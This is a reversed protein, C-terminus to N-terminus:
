PQFLPSQPNLSRANRYAALAEDANGLRAELRSLVLWTQWNTSEQRSAERAEVAAADIDGELELVIARQLSPTAAYPQLGAADDAKDLAEDLDGAAVAQESDTISKAATLPIAIVVLAVVAAAALVVRGPLGRRAERDESEDREVQDRTTLIAGGLLLFAATVAALEWVWDIASATLYAACSAAVGAIVARHRGSRRAASVAAWVLTAIFALLILLGVVGAEGFTELYLSHADRVFFNELDNTRSWWFEYAGPGIGTLPESEGADLAADWHQYRGTGSASVFRTAGREDITPSKFEQWSDSLEDPAGAAVASAIGIVVAVGAIGATAIVVDRGVPGIGEPMVGRYAAQLFGVATCVVLTLLLMEDGQAQASATVLGDELSDLGTAIVILLAAGAGTIALTPLLNLRRPALLFLVTLAVVLEVAGGRSLTYFATLAMAPLVAAALASTVLRRSYTAAALVIPIGMVILAALGNWYGLPYSLRERTIPLFDAATNEPFWSPHLRSLLAVLAVIAIAAGVGAAVREITGPGRNSLALALVGLYTLVRTVEVMTQESSETWTFGLATWVAFAALLGFALWRARGMPGRALLGLVAGLLVLWWVIVGVESSTVQSYGGSQLALYLVLVFPLGFEALVPGADRVLRYALDRSRVTAALGSAAAVPETVM